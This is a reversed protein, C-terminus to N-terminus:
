LTVSAKWRAPIVPLRMFKAVELLLSKVDPPSSFMLLVHHTSSEIGCHPM